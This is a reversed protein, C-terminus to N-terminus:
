QRHQGSRTCDTIAAIKGDVLTFARCAEAGEVETTRAGQRAQYSSAIVTAQVHDGRKSVDRLSTSLGTITRGQQQWTDLLHLDQALATATRHYVSTLLAENATNLAKDRTALLAQLTAAPDPPLPSPPMASPQAPANSSPRDARQATAAQAPTAPHDGTRPYWWWVSALAVLVVLAALGGRGPAKAQPRARRAPKVRTAPARQQMRAVALLEASPLTIAQRAAFQPQLAVFERASMRRQPDPKLVQKAAAHLSPAQSISTLLAGLAWVDSACSAPGGSAREPAIYGPTGAEVTLRACLDILVITGEDTLMVNAPSVDGHVIGREHLAGLASGIAEWVSAVEGDTLTKRAQVVTALSVGSLAESVVFLSRPEPKFVTTVAALHQHRIQCLALLRRYLLDAETLTPLSIKTVVCPMGFKDRAEFVGADSLPALLEYDAANM